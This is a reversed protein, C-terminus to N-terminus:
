LIKHQEVKALTDCQKHCQPRAREDLDHGVKPTPENTRLVAVPVEFSKATFARRVKCKIEYGLSYPLVFRIRFM